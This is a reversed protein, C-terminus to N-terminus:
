STGTAATVFTYIVRVATVLVYFGLMVLALKVPVSESNYGYESRYIKIEMQVPTSPDTWANLGYIEITSYTSLLNNKDTWSRAADVQQQTFYSTSVPNKASRNFLLFGQQELIATWPLTGALAVALLPQLMGKLITDNIQQMYLDALRMVFNPPLQVTINPISSISLLYSEAVQTRASTNVLYESWAAHITCAKSAWTYNTNTQCPNDNTLVVLSSYKQENDPVKHILASYNYPRIQGDDCKADQPYTASMFTANDTSVSQVVSRPILSNLESKGSGFDVFTNNADGQNGTALSTCDLELYPQLASTEAFDTQREFQRTTIFSGSLRTPITSYFGWDGLDGFSLLRTGSADQIPTSSATGKLFGGVKAYALIGDALVHFQSEVRYVTLSSLLSKDCLERYIAAVM